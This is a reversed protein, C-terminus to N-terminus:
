QLFNPEYVDMGNVHLNSVQCFQQMKVPTFEKTIFNCM